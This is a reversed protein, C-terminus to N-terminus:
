ALEVVDVADALATQALDVVHRHHTFLIPQVRTGIEALVRLGHETRREDFSAFLDDALFPAAEARSAYDEVYALRLALYFQDRTGESLGDVQVTAGGQRRAVLQVKDDAGFEQDITSFAGGTLMAFLAGARQMLPDQRGARHHKLAGDLLVGAIKLVAWERAAEQLEAEANRKQQNALEASIRGEAERLRRRM